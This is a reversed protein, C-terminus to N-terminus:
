NMVLSEQGFLVGWEETLDLDPKEKPYRGNESDPGDLMTKSKDTFLVKQFDVRRYQKTRKDHKIFHNM